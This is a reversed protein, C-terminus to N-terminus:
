YSEINNRLRVTVERNDNADRFATFSVEENVLDDTSINANFPTLRIDPFDFRLKARENADRGGAFYTKANNDSTTVLDSGTSSSSVGSLADIAAAVASTTNNSPTSDLEVTILKGSISASLSGTGDSIVIAYDNGDEGATDVTVDVTDSGDTQLSASASAASNSDLEPGLFEFRIMVQETSRLMDLFEPNRHFQTFSGEVSFGKVLTTTPFRDIVDAGVAAWRQELENTFTLTIDEINTFTSLNQTANAGTGLFAQAGGSFTLEDSLDYSPDQAKIVVIDDTELTDGITSVTLQTESDISAITYEAVTTSPDDKDLVLISDNTTLGTTQDVTLTTGSSVDDLVRANQFSRQAQVTANIRAKNEDITVELSEITLGFHRQAYGDDGTEIDVTFSPLSTQPEFDHQYSAGSNLTTTSPDGFLGHLFHGARNVEAWIEISGTAPGVRNAVARNNLSRNGAITNAATHDWNVVISEALLEIGTDPLVATGGTTEPKLMLYGLKSYTGASPM